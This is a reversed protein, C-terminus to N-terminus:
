RRLNWVEIRTLLDDIEASSLKLPAVEAATPKPNRAASYDAFFRSLLETERALRADPPFRLSVDAALLEYFPAFMMRKPDVPERVFRGSADRLRHRKFTRNHPLRRQSRDWRRREVEAFTALHRIRKLKRYTARDCPVYLGFSTRFVHELSDTSM